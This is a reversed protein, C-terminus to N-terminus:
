VVGLLGSESMKEILCWLDCVAGVGSLDQVVNNVGNEGRWLGAFDLGSAGLEQGSAIGHKAMQWHNNATHGTQPVGCDSLGSFYLLM